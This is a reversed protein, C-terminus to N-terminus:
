WKMQGGIKKTSGMGGGMQSMAKPAQSTEQLKTMLVWEQVVMFRPALFKYTDRLLNPNEKNPEVRAQKWRELIEDWAMLRIHLEDRKDRIYPVQAALNRLVSLIEGTQADVEQFMKDFEKVARDSLRAVQDAIELVSKERAYLRRLEQIKEEMVKIRRYRDRLAEIYALETALDEVHKVVAEKNDRGYGLKEAAEGFAANINKRIAPDNAIQLLEEPDTIMTDGGSMWNVLQLSVRQYAIERHKPSLAWSAERTIIEKPLPDGIRMAKVYRLGKAIMELMKGDASDDPINFERSIGKLALVVDNRTYKAIMTPENDSGTLQFHVDEMKHFFWHELRVKPTNDGSSKTGWSMGEPSGAPAKDAM